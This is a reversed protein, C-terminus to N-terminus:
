ANKPAPSPPSMTQCPLPGRAPWAKSTCPQVKLKVLAQAAGAGPEAERDAVLVVHRAPAAAIELITEDKPILLIHIAEAGIILIEIQALSM